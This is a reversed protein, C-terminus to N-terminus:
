RRESSTWVWGGDGSAGEWSSGFWLLAMPPVRDPAHCGGGGGGRESQRTRIQYRRSRVTGIEERCSAQVAGGNLEVESTKTVTLTAGDMNKFGLEGALM